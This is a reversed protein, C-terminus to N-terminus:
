DNRARFTTAVDAATETKRRRRLDGDARRKEAILKGAFEIADALQLSDPARCVAFLIEDSTRKTLLLVKADREHAKCEEATAFRKGDHAEYEMARKM